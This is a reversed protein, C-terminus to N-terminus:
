NFQTRWAHLGWLEFDGVRPNIQVDAKIEEATIWCEYTTNAYSEDDILVRLHKGEPYWLTFCEESDTKVITEPLGGPSSPGVAWVYAPFPRGQFDRVQGTLKHISLSLTLDEVGAKNSVRTIVESLRPDAFASHVFFLTKHALKAEFTQQLRVPSLFEVTYNDPVLDCLVLELFPENRMPYSRGWIDTLTAGELHPNPYLYAIAKMTIILPRGM